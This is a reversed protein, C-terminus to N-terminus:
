AARGVKLTTGEPISFADSIDNAKLIDVAHTTDGYVAFSVQVVSMVTPTVYSAHPGFERGLDEIKEIVAVGFDHLARTLAWNEPDSLASFKADIQNVKSVVGEFKASTQAGVAEVQDMAGIAENAAGELSEFLDPEAEKIPKIADLLLYAKGSVYDSTVLKELSLEEESDELFKMKMRVGDRMRAPDADESWDIAYGPLEGLHPVVIRGTEQKEFLIRITNLDDPFAGPHAPDNTSFVADFEIEYLGRGLKEPQGGPSKPYEHTHSRGRGRVSWRTVAFSIGAFSAIRLEDFASM